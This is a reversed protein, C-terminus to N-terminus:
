DGDDDVAVAVAAIVAVLVSFVTEFTAKLTRTKRHDAFLFFCGLIVCSLCMEMEHWSLKVIPAQWDRM